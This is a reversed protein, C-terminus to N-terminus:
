RSFFTEKVICCGSCDHTPLAQKATERAIVASAEAKTKTEARMKSQMFIRPDIARWVFTMRAEFLTHIPSLLSFALRCPPYHEDIVDSVLLDIVVRCEKAKEGKRQADRVLCSFTADLGDRASKEEIKLGSSNRYMIEHLIFIESAKKREM